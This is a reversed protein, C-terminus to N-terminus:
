VMMHNSFEPLPAASYSLGAQTPAPKLKLFLRQSFGEVVPEATAVPTDEMAPSVPQPSRWIAIDDSGVLVLRCDDELVLSYPAKRNGSYQITGSAWVAKMNKDYIVLNGDDQAALTFPAVVAGEPAPTSWVEKGDKNHIVLRGGETLKYSCSALNKKIEALALHKELEAKVAQLDAKVQTETLVGEALEKEKEDIKEQLLKSATLLAEEKTKCAAFQAEFDVEVEETEEDTKQNLYFYAGVGAGILVLVVVIILILTSM